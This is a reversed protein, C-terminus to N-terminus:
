DPLAAAIASKQQPTLHTPFKINFTIILDGKQSPDKQLPMGEGKIIQKSHPTVVENMTIRLKRDDLTLVEIVPNALAQKLSINATYLLDNGQRKFRPHEVEKLVFVLDAPVQGPREDGEKEFTVKTGEKWGPRVQITLIKEVPMSKGSPDMITKTVKMKKITGKYLDELTCNFQRKIAPAQRPGRPQGFGGM